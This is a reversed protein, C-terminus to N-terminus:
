KFWTPLRYRLQRRKIKQDPDPIMLRSLRYFSVAINSNDVHKRQMATDISNTLTELRTTDNLNDWIDIELTYDERNGLPCGDIDTSNPLKYVVYPYVAGDPAKELYAKTTVTAIKTYIATLLDIM